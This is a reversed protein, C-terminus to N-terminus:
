FVLAVIVFVAAVVKAVAVFCVILLLVLMQFPIKEIQTLPLDLFPIKCGQSLKLAVSSSRFALPIDIPEVPICFRGFLTSFMFTCFIRLMSDNQWSKVLNIFTWKM